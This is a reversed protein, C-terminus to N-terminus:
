ENTHTNLRKKLIAYMRVNQRMGAVHGSQGYWPNDTALSAVKWPGKQPGLNEWRGWLLACAAAGVSLLTVSLLIVYAYPINVLTSKKKIRCMSTFKCYWITLHLHYIFLHFVHSIVDRVLVTNARIICTDLFM